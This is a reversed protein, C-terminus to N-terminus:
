LFSFDRPHIPSNNQISFEEIKKDIEAIQENLLEIQVVLHKIQIEEAISSIGISSKACEKLKEPTLSIRIWSKDLEDNNQFLTHYSGWKLPWLWLFLIYLDM